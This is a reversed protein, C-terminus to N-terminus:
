KEVIAPVNAPVVRVPVASRGQPVQGFTVQCSECQYPREGTHYRTHVVLDSKKYFKKGCGDRECVWKLAM